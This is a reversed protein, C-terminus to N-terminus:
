SSWWKCGGNGCDASIKGTAYITNAYIPFNPVTLAGLATIDQGCTISQPTTFGLNATLGGTTTVSGSITLMGNSWAMGSADDGLTTGVAALVTGASKAKQNVKHTRGTAFQDIATIDIAAIETAVIDIAKIGGAAITGGATIGGSVNLHPMAVIGTVYLVSAIGLALATLICVWMFVAHLTHMTPSAANM